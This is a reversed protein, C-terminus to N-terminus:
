FELFVADGAKVSFSLKNNVPTEETVVNNKWVKVKSVTNKLSLTINNADKKPDLTTILAKNKGEKSKFCGVINDDGSVSIIEGYDYLPEYLNYSVAATQIVGDAHCNLLIKGISNIDANLKKVYDYRVTKQGNLDILANGFTESGNGPSWYCFYQIGKAGFALNSWVQWRIDAESPERKDPVGPTGAISLTQIFTWFPIEQFRSKARIFDLNSYYERTITGDTLLPYSDYSLYHPNITQMWSNIYDAYSSTQIAGTAYSPLLNVHWLKNPYAKKFASIYASVSNFLPKGPEDMLLEGAFAEHNAYPKIGDTFKKLLSEDPNKAYKAIDEGVVSKSAFYKLDNEKCFNLVNLIRSNSNEHFYFGNVFNIGSERIKRYEETTQSGAPPTVWLGIPIEKIDLIDYKAETVVPDTGNDNNESNKKCGAAFQMMSSLMLVILFSKMM